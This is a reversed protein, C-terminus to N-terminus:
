EAFSLVTEEDKEATFTQQVKATEGKAQYTVLLTLQAHDQNSKFLYRGNKFQEAPKLTRVDPQVEMPHKQLDITAKELPTGHFVSSYEEPLHTLFETRDKGLLEFDHTFIEPPSHHKKAYDVFENTLENQEADLVVVKEIQMSNRLKNHLDFKFAYTYSGNKDMYRTLNTNTFEPPKSSCASFFVLLSLLVANSTIRMLNRDNM